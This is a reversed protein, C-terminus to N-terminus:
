QPCPSWSQPNQALESYLANILRPDTGIPSYLGTLRPTITVPDQSTGGYMLARSAGIALIANEITTQDLKNPLPLSVAISKGTIGLTQVTLTGTLRNARAEAGIVGLDSLTAGGSIAFIDATLRLGIGVYIPVTVEEWGEDAPFRVSVAAPDANLPVYEASYSSIVDAEGVRSLARPVQQGSSQIHVRVMFTVPISTANTYDLVARYVGGETTVKAPGFTFAGNGRVEAVAFRVTLDPLANLIATSTAAPTCSRVDVTLPDLPVYGHNALNAAQTQPTPLPRPVGGGVTTTPAMGVTTCGALLFVIMLSSVRGIM